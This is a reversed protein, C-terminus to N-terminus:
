PLRQRGPASGFRLRAPQRGRRRGPGSAIRCDARMRAGAVGIPIRLQAHGEPHGDDAGDASVGPQTGEVLSQPDNPFGGFESEDCGQSLEHVGDVADGFVALQEYDQPVCVPKSLTV